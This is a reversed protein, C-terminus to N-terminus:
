FNATWTVSDTAWIHYLCTLVVDYACSNDKWLPGCCITNPPKKRKNPGSKLKASIIPKQVETNESSLIMQDNASVDEKSTESEMQTSDDIIKWQINNEDNAKVFPDKSTWKIAKHVGTPVFDKGKWKQFNAITSNRTNSLVHSPLQSHYDLYTIYDLLELERYEQRLVGSCGGQFHKKEFGQIILTKAHSKGRSLATYVAQHSKCYNLHVVNTARTKGQSAFDTM